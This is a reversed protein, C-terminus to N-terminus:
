PMTRHVTDVSFDKRHQTIRIAIDKNGRYITDPAHLIYFTNSDISTVAKPYPLLKFDKTSYTFSILSDNRALLTGSNVFQKMTTTIVVSDNAIFRQITDFTYFINTKPPATITTFPYFNSLSEDIENIRRANNDIDFGLSMMRNAKGNSDLWVNVQTPHGTKSDGETFIHSYRNLNSQDIHLKKDIHVNEYGNSIINILNGDLDLLMMTAFKDSNEISVFVGNLKESYSIKKGLYYTKGALTAPHTYEWMRYPVFLQASLSHTFVFTVIITLLLKIM